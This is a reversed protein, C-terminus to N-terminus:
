MKGVLTSIGTLASFGILAAPHNIIGAFPVCVEIKFKM